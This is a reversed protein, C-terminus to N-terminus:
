KQNEEFKVLIVDSGSESLQEQLTTPIKNDELSKEHDDDLFSKRSVVVPMGLSSLSRKVEPYSTTTTNLNFIPPLDHPGNPRTTWWNVLLTIRPCDKPIPSQLVGHYLKGHFLLLRGLKPFSLVYKSPISPTLDGEFKEQDFVVTPGGSPSCYLVSSVLPYSLKTETGEGYCIDCDTHYEKPGDDFEQQQWWWEAGCAKNELGAVPSSKTVELIYAEIANRPSVEKNLDLWYTGSTLSNPKEEPEFDKSRITTFDEMLVNMGEIVNDIFVMPNEQSLNTMEIFPTPSYYSFCSIIKKKKPSFLFFFM